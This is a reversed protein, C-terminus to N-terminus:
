LLRQVQETNQPAPGPSMQGLPQKSVFRQFDAKTKDEPQRYKNMQRNDGQSDPGPPWEGCDAIQDSDSRTVKTPM